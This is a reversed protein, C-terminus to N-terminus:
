ILWRIHNKVYISPASNNVSIITRPKGHAPVAVAAASPVATRVPGSSASFPWVACPRWIMRGARHCCALSRSPPPLRTTHTGARTYVNQFLFVQVWRCKDFHACTGHTSARRHVPLMCSNCDTNAENAHMRDQWTRYIVCMSAHMRSWANRSANTQMVACYAQVNIPTDRWTGIDCTNLCSELHTYVLCTCM